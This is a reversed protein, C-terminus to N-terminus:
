NGYIFILALGAYAKKVLLFYSPFFFSLFFPFSPITPLLSHVPSFFVRLCPILSFFFLFSFLFLFFSLFSLISSHHVFSRAFSRVFSRVSLKICPHISPHVSPRVSPHNSPYISLHNSSHIVSHISHPFFLSSLLSKYVM